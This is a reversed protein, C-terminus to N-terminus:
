SSKKRAASKERMVAADRRDQDGRKAHAKGAKEADVDSSQAPSPRNKAGGKKVFRTEEANFRQAAVTNGEGQNKPVM